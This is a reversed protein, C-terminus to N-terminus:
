TVKYREEKKTRSNLIMQKYEDYNKFTIYKGEMVDFCQEGNAMEYENASVVIYVEKGDSNDFIQKFLYEKLEIVNDISLGSDIADFLFWRENSPEKENEEETKENAARRFIKVFMNKDTRYTGTKIFECINGSFRAINLTINEGESGSAQSALFSLDGMRLSEGKAYYGGDRLNNFEMYLIDEKKLTDKICNLFTSKGSGNCGVLVTLGSKITVSRKKYLDFGYDYPDKGLKIKRSM